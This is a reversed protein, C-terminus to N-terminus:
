EMEAPNFNQEVPYSNNDTYHWWEGYYGSFGNQVMIEELYAANKAAEPTCDGFDRDALKSFDDFGTPMEVETGDMYVITIDITNGRSHSSFGNYPNAVYTSDPCIEWLKFQAATPRFADWIKLRYGSEALDSQVQMLKKVTGYRLWPENFEYIVQGTFNNDTAYRLETVVDPIYDCVKVFDQNSPEPEPETEAPETIPTTSETIIPESPIEPPITVPEIHDPQETIRPIDETVTPLQPLTLHELVEDCGCLSFTITILLISLLIKCRHMM